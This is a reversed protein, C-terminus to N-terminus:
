SRQSCRRRSLMLAMAAVGGLALTAPEPVAGLAAFAAPGNAAIYDSKFLLFDAYDNDKDGDLDGKQYAVAALEEAFTKFSNPVFVAWDAANIVGDGNLDSRKAADGTYQIQGAGTTGDGLTFTFALDQVPTKRWAAGISASGNASITGGDLVGGTVAEAITTSTSSSATWTGNPDFANTADISTWTVPNLAGGASTISYSKVNFAGTSQNTLSIVGTTRNVTLVPLPAPEPGAAFSASVDSATLATNYIRFEDILGDFLPDGWQARGLWNNNDNIEDLYMDTPIPATVAPGNNVYLTITGFDGATTDFQDFIAVMHSRVGTPLGFGASAFSEPGQAPHASAIAHGTEGRQPVMIVYSQGNGGTSAGEGGESTGFDVLRAWNRNDQPTAWIELTVAGNTAVADTFIGNPLDVYAGVTTPQSFDQNSNAGNNRTLDLAGGTYSSIGTRDIVEGNKGGVSDFANGNFTYKHVLAAETATALTALAGTALLLRAAASKPSVGLSNM